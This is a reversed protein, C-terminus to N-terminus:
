ASPDSPVAGGAGGVGSVEGVESAQGVERAPLPLWVPVTAVDLVLETGTRVAGDFEFRGAVHDADRFDIVGSEFRADTFDVEGSAFHARCFYLKGDDVVKSRRVDLRADGFRAESFDVEGGSFVSLELGLTGSSLDARRFDVLGRLIRFEFMDLGAGEFRAGAFTMTGGDLVARKFEEGDFTAGTFDFVRDHWGHEAGEALHATILRAITSRFDRDDHILQPDADAPPRGRRIHACLVDICQQRGEEWDDALQTMSYVGAIRLGAQDSALQTAAAGFRENLLRTEERAERRVERDVREREWTDVNEAMLHRRFALVLGITAGIGGVLAFALKVLDVVVPSNNRLQDRSLLGLEGLAAALSGGAVTLAVVVALVTTRILPRARKPDFGDRPSEVDRRGNRRQTRQASEKTSTV